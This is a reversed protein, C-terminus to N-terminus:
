QKLIVFFDDRDELVAFKRRFNCLSEIDLETIVVEEAGERCSGVVEGRANRLISEGLYTNGCDDEGVCNVGVVFAQNEMARAKLLTNWVDRRVSPWNAIYVALDYHDTNRSWVPFRLDYCIFPAIRVGKYEFVLQSIGAEFHEPEGGMRFLHRKDYHLVRGDPFVILMRNYFAGDEKYVLSGMVVAKRMLAWDRMKEGIHGSFSAIREKEREVVEKEQKIMMAGSAFMEPLVLLDCDPMISIIDHLHGINEEIKGWYIRTQVLAIKM